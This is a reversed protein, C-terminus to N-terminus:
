KAHSAKKNSDIYLQALEILETELCLRKESSLANIAKECKSFTSDDTGCRNGDEHMPCGTCMPAESVDHAICYVCNSPALLLKKPGSAEQVYHTMSTIMSESVAIDRLQKEPILTIGLHRELADNKKVLYEANNM